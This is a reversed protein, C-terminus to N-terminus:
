GAPEAFKAELFRGVANSALLSTTNSSDLRPAVGMGKRQVDTAYDVFLDREERVASPGHRAGPERTVGGYSTDYTETESETDDASEDTM